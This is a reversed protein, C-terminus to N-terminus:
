LDSELGMDSTDGDPYVECMYTRGRGAKRSMFAAYGSEDSEPVSSWDNFQWGKRVLANIKADQETTPKYM